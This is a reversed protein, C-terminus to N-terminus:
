KVGLRQNDERVRITKVQGENVDGGEGRLTNLRRTERGRHWNTKTRQMLRGLM